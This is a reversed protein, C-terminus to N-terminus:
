EHSLLRFLILEAWLQERRTAWPSEASFSITKSNQQTRHAPTAPSLFFSGCIEPTKREALQPPFNQNYRNTCIPASFHSAFRCFFLSGALLSALKAQALAVYIVWHIEVIQRAWSRPFFHADSERGAREVSFQSHLYRLIFVFDRESRKAM